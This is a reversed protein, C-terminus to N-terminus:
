TQEPPAGGEIYRPGARARRFSGWALPAPLARAQTVLWAASITALPVAPVHFRADGFFALPVNALTLLTLLALVRRPDRPAAVFAVLGLGALGMTIFFFTDSTRILATKVTPDVFRDRGYSEAAILGDHDHDWLYRARLVILQLERVPHDRAYRLAKRINGSNRRVELEPRKLGQYEALCHDALAFHGNAGPHHGICLDDGLNASLIIPADMVIFNRISWPAIVAATAVLALGTQAAARRWGLGASLWVVPLLPLVLLSIPRVLASCGLLVGFALLRRYGVRGQRWRDWILVLLAALVLVNFLTESMLVATHFILNPFVALWFGALLGVAPTFLRRGLLYALPVTATGLFVQFFAGARILNDPLPTHKVLAFVGGLAAPFGIPFYASPLGELDTYGKGVAIRHAFFLYQAPDQLGEPPRAAYLVWVTRLAAALVVALLLWPTEPRSWARAILDQLQTSEAARIRPHQGRCRLVTM